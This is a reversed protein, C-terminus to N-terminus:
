LFVKLAITRRIEDSSMPSYYVYIMGDRRSGPLSFICGSKHTKKFDEAASLIKSHHVECSIVGSKCIDLINKHTFGNLLLLERLSEDYKIDVVTSEENKEEIM